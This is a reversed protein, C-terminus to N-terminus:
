QQEIRTTVHDSEQITGKLTSDRIVTGVAKTKDVSFLRIKGLYRTDAPNNGLRFVDMFVDKSLGDDLGLNIEVMGEASHTATVLGSVTPVETNLPVKYNSMAIRYQACQLLLQRNREALRNWEGTAQGLEDELKIVEDLADDRDKTLSTNKDRVLKNEDQTKALVIAAQKASEIAENLASTKSAIETNLKDRADLHERVATELQGRVQESERITRELLKQKETLETQLRGIQADRDALVQKLGPQQGPQPTPNDVMMKWNKHTAHVALTFSSFVLAMVFLAVVLIKGVLNM